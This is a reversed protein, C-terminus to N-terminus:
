PISNDHSLTAEQRVAEGWRSLLFKARGNAELRIEAITDERDWKHLGRQNTPSPLHNKVSVVDTCHQSDM